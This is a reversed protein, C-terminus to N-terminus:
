VSSEYTNLKKRRRLMAFLILGAFLGLLGIGGVVVYRRIQARDHNRQLAAELDTNEFVLEDDVMEILEGMDEAEKPLSYAEAENSNVDYGLDRLAEVSVKSFPNGYRSIYPTMLENGFTSERWHGSQYEHVPVFGSGGLSRYADNGFNGTFRPDEGGGDLILGKRTFGSTGIGVTHGLEHRIVDYLRGNAEESDLDESDVTIRGMRAEENIFGCPGARALVNLYGDIPEIRVFVDLGHNGEGPQYVYDVGCMSSIDFAETTTWPQVNPHSNIIANWDAAAAEFIAKEEDNKKVFASDVKSIGHVLGAETVEEIDENKKLAEWHDKQQEKTRTRVERFNKSDQLHQVLHAVPRVNEWNGNTIHYYTGTKKPTLNFDGALILPLDEAKKQIYKLLLGAHIDLIRKKDNVAPMHYTALCFEKGTYKHQLIAWICGNSFTKARSIFKLTKESYNKLYRDDYTEEDPWHITDIIRRSDAKRVEFDSPVALFVSCYPSGIDECKNPIPTYSNKIFFDILLEQWDRNVEQLCFVCNPTNTINHELVQKIKEFREDPNLHEPNANPHNNPTSFDPSLLNYTVVGVELNEAAM